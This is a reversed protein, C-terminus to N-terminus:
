QVVEIVSIKYLLESIEAIRFNVKYKAAPLNDNPELRNDNRRLRVIMRAFRSLAKGWSEGTFSLATM